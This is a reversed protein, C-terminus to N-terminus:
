EQEEKTIKIQAEKSKKIEMGKKQQKSNQGKRREM